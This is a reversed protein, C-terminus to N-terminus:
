KAPVPPAPTPPVPQGPASAPMQPHSAPAPGPPLAERPGSRREALIGMLKYRLEKAMAPDKEIAAPLELELGNSLIREFYLVSKGDQVSTGVVHYGRAAIEAWAALGTPDGPTIVLSEVEFAAVNSRAPASRTPQVQAQPHPRIPIPQVAPPDAAPQPAPTAPAEGATALGACAIAAICSRSLFPM